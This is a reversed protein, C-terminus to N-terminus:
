PTRATLGLKEFLAADENPPPNPSTLLKDGLFISNAGALFCMAQAAEGLDTRGASLRVWARPMLIRASAVTRVWVDWEIPARKELPTGDVAILANIPVSEPQQRALEYLLGVRDEDSEGMGVIGGCCMALGAERVRGLTALREDYTRTTIIESYFMRSTDLNHNYYDLGAAKLKKAQEDSLMGLTACTEMGLAKVRRVMEVVREFEEGEKADRWAAGMCFRDAGEAKARRAAAVVAESSLLPERQVGTSYHASQPCYACNEPCGGTKISLLAACQVTRPDHHARHVEAAAFVLDILPRHYVARVTERTMSGDGEHAGHAGNTGMTGMTGSMAVMDLPARPDVAGDNRDSGTMAVTQCIGTCIRLAKLRSRVTTRLPHCM